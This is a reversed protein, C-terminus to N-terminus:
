PTSSTRTLTMTLNSSHETATSGGCTYQVPTSDATLPVPTGVQTGDVFATETGDARLDSFSMTGNATRITGQVTGKVTITLRHGNATGTYDSSPGYDQTTTGDAHIRVEAGQGVVDIPGVNPIDLTETDKTIKWAGILCSDILASPTPSGAATTGGATGAAPGAVPTGKGSKIVVVVIIAAVLLVVLAAGTILLPITASRTRPAPAPPYGYPAPSGPPYPAGSMPQPYPSGSMPQPYPNGGPPGAIVGRFTGCQTCYGNPDVGMGGCVQCPQM